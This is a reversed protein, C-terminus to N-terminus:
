EGLQILSQFTFATSLPHLYYDKLWNKGGDNEWCGIPEIMIELQVQYKEWLPELGVDNKLM